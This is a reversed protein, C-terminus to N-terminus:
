EINAYLHAAWRKKKDWEHGKLTSNASLNKIRAKMTIKMSKRQNSDAVKWDELAEELVEVEDEWLKMKVVAKPAKPGSSDSTYEQMKPIDPDETSSRNSSGTTAM